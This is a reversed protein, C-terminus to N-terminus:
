GYKFKKFKWRNKILWWLISHNAIVRKPVAIHWILDLLYHSLLGISFIIVYQSFLAIVAIATLFEATHFILLIGNNLTFDNREVQIMYHGYCDSLSLNRYKYIYWLYHDIDILFGGAFILLAKLGFIPYLSAALIASAVFHVAAKM